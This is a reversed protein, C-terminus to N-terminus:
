ATKPVLKIVNSVVEKAVKGNKTIAYVTGYTVGATVVFGCAVAGYAFIKGNDRVFDGAMEFNFKGFKIKVRDKETNKEM